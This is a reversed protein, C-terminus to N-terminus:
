VKPGSIIKAMKITVNFGWKLGGVKHGSTVKVTQINFGM